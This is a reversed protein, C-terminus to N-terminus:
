LRFVEYQLYLPTPNLLETKSFSHKSNESNPYLSKNYFSYNGTYTSASSSRHKSEADEESSEESVEALLELDKVELTVAYELRNSSSDLIEVENNGLNVTSNSAISDVPIGFFSIGFVLM